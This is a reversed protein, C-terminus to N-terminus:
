IRIENGRGFSFAHYLDRVFDYNEEWSVIAQLSSTTNCSKPVM